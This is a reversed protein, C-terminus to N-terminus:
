WVSGCVGAVCQIVSSCMAVCQWVCISVIVAPPKVGCVHACVAVFHLLSCCVVVCQLVFVCVCMGVSERLHVCM